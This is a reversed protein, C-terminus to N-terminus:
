SHSSLNFQYHSFFPIMKMRQEIYQVLEQEWVVQDRSRSIHSFVKGSCAEVYDQPCSVNLVECYQLIVAQPHQILDESHITVVEVLKSVKMITEAFWFILKTYYKLKQPELKVKKGTLQLKRIDSEHAYRYLAGTAIMDFPNRVVHIMVVPVEVVEQLLRLCLKSKNFHRGFQASLYGGSKDGIVELKRFIGQWTHPIYLNYGKRSDREESRWGSRDQANTYSNRYLQNFLATKNLLSSMRKYIICEELLRHEHAIVMNPHADMMSGIISHASRPYGIFLVLRNVSKVESQSLSVTTSSATTSIMEEYVGHCLAVLLVVMQCLAVLLVVMLAGSIYVTIKKTVMASFLLQSQCQLRAHINSLTIPMELLEQCEENHIAEM